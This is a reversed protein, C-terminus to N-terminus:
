RRIWRETGLTTGGAYTWVSGWNAGEPAVIALGTDGGSKYSVALFNADGVATGVFREGGIMWVVRYTQGTRTIEVTGSYTDSGGPNRGQVTYRGVPEAAIAGTMGAALFGAALLSRIRM